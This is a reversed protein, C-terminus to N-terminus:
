LLKAKRGPIRKTTMAGFFALSASEIPACSTEGDGFGTGGSKGILRKQAHIASDTLGKQGTHTLSGEEIATITMSYAAIVDGTSAVKLGKAPFGRDRLKTALADAKSKGDIITVSCKDRRDCLWDALWSIGGGSASAFDICEIYSEGDRRRMAASLAFMSGDPTFKVGFAIKDGAAPEPVRLAECGYWLEEKIAPNGSQTSEDWWGLRERAFGDPTLTLCEEEVFEEDIRIGMAPNTEYWRERDTVDGIESVSWEDWAIRGADDGLARARQKKFVTGHSVPSPPTGTYILQRNGLPAAAMTSMISEMQDNTLEQAEDFVVVDYTSGRSGGNVRSSFEIAGGNSLVIAEQGNTRRISVVMEALEPYKPNEFFSVLRLFAKRATDVRHATHLIKEGIAILGYLERMELVANKGNQRPLSLGCTTCVFLDREDRALWVDLTDAQWEDPKMGYAEAFKAADEGDSYKRLAPNALWPRIAIRPEQRGTRYSSM